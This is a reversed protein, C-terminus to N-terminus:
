DAMSVDSQSVDSHIVIATGVIATEVSWTDLVLVLVPDLPQTLFYLICVSLRLLKM